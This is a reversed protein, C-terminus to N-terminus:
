GLHDCKITTKLSLPSNTQSATRRAKMKVFPIFAPTFHYLSLPSSPFLPCLLRSPDLPALRIIAGPSHLSVSPRGAAQRRQWSLIPCRAWDSPSRQPSCLSVSRALSRSCAGEEQKRSLASPSFAPSLFASVSCVAESRHQGIDGASVWM